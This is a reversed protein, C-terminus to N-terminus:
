GAMDEVVLVPPEDADDDRVDLVLLTRRGLPIMDGSSWNPVASALTPPEAAAGNTTELRFLFAMRSRRELAPRRLSNVGLPEPVHHKKWERRGVRAINLGLVPLSGIVIVGAAAFVWEGLYPALIVAVAGAGFDLALEVAISAAVVHATRRVTFIIRKL